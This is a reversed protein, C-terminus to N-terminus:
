ILRKAIASMDMSVRVLTRYIIALNNHWLWDTTRELIYVSVLDVAIYSTRHINSYSVTCLGIFM